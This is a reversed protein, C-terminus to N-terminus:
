DNPLLSDIEDLKKDSCKGKAIYVIKGNEDLVYFHPTDKNTLKLENKYEKLKGKYFLLYKAADDGLQKKSKEMVGKYATKNLGTFMAVFYVNIDYNTQMFNNSSIFRDYIPQLWTNWDYESKKSWALGVITFKGKTDMPIVFEKNNITECEMTPFVKGKQATISLSTFLILTIIFTKIM